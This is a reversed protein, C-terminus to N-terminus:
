SAPATHVADYATSEHRVLTLLNGLEINADILHLGWTPAPSPTPTQAGGLPTVQLV